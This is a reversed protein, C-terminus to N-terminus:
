NTKKPRYPYLSCDKDTCKGIEGSVYGVCEICFFKMAAKRSKGSMARAYLGEYKDPVDKM